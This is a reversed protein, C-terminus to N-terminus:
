KVKILLYLSLAEEFNQINFGTIKKIVELKNMVTNRHMYSAKATQTVNLNNLFFHNILSITQADNLINKFVIKRLRILSSYDKKVIDFILDKTNIYTAQMSSYKLYLDFLIFFDERIEIDIPCSEFGKLLIGFDDNITNIINQLSYDDEAKYFYIIYENYKIIDVNNFLSSIVESIDEANLENSDFAFFRYLKYSYPFLGDNFLYNHMAFSNKHSFEKPSSFSKYQTFDVKM